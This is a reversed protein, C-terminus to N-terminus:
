ATELWSLQTPESPAGGAVVLDDNGVLPIPAPWMSPLNASAGDSPRPAAEARARRREIAARLLNGSDVGGPTPTVTHPYLPRGMADVAALRRPITGTWNTHRGLWATNVVERRPEQNARAIDVVYSSGKTQSVIHCSGGTLLDTKLPGTEAAQLQAQWWRLRSAVVAAVPTGQEELSGALQTLQDTAVRHHTHNWRVPVGHGDCAGFDGRAVRIAERLQEAGQVAVRDPHLIDATILVGDDRFRLQIAPNIQEVGRPSQGRNSATADAIASAQATSSSPLTATAISMGGLM